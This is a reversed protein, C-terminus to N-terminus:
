MPKTHILLSWHLKPYQVFVTENQYLVPNIDHKNWEPNGNKRCYEVISQTTSTGNELLYDLILNFIRAKVEDEHTTRKPKPRDTPPNGVNPKVNEIPRFFVVKDVKPSDTLESFEEPSLSRPQSNDVSIEDFVRKTFKLRGDQVPPFMSLITDRSTSKNHISGGLQVLKVILDVDMNYLKEEEEHIPSLERKKIVNNNAKTFREVLDDKQSPLTSQLPPIQPQYASVPKGTVIQGHHTGIYSDWDLFSVNKIILVDGVNTFREFWNKNEGFLKRIKPKVAFSCEAQVSEISVNDDLCIYCKWRMVRDLNGRNMPVTGGYADRIYFLEDEENRYILFLTQQTLKPNHTRHRFKQYDLDKQIQKIIANIGFADYYMNTKPMQLHIIPNDKFISQEIEHNLNVMVIDEIKDSMQTRHVVDDFIIRFADFVIYKLYNPDQAIPACIAFRVEPFIM